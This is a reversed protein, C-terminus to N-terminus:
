MQGACPHPPLDRADKDAEMWACLLKKNVQPYFAELLQSSGKLGCPLPNKKKLEELLLMQFLLMKDVSTKGYHEHFVASIFQGKQNVRVYVWEIKLSM